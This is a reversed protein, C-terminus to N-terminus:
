GVKAARYGRTGNGVVTTIIGETGIRRIRQNNHDAVYLNGESDIAIGYPSNLRAQTALGGDGSFGGNFPGCLGAITSILGSPSVRRICHNSTDAIYLSGDAGLALGNPSRLSAQIAPVNNGGTGPQGTGAVVALNGDADRRFVNHNSVFYLEGQPGPLLHRIRFSSGGFKELTGDEVLTFLRGDPNM